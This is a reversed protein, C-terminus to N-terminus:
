RSASMDPWEGVLGCAPCRAALSPCIVFKPQHQDEPRVNEVDEHTARVLGVTRCRPCMEQALREVPNFDDVFVPVGGAVVM